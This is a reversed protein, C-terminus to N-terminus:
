GSYQLRRSLAAVRRRILREVLASVGFLGAYLLAVRGIAGYMVSSIVMLLAIGAFPLLLFLATFVRSQSGRVKPESFPLKPSVLYSIQLFLFALAGITATHAVAHLPNRFYYVFLVLLLLLAPGAVLLFLMNRGALVLRDLRCPTAYFIWSAEYADTAEISQKLVMPLILIAFFFLAFQRISVSGHLFPDLLAGERLGLYFYILLLPFMGMVALRFKNDHRFQGWVLRLVVRDEPRRFLRTLALSGRGTRPAAKEPYAQAEMYLAIRRLYDFSLTRAIRYGLLAMVGIALAAGLWEGATPTAYGLEVIAAFWTTPLAYLWPSKDVQAGVLFQKLANPLILYGTYVLLSIGFQLYALFNKLRQPSIWRMLQGYLLIVLLVVFVGIAMFAVFAAVGRLPHWGGQLLYVAVSPGALVLNFAGVYALVNTFKALFYTQSTIPQYGLIHYDDPSIVIASYEILLISGLLFLLGAATLSAGVFVSTATYNIWALIGGFLLYYALTSWFITKPNRGEQQWGFGMKSVRMDLRWALKLLALYQRRDVKLWAFVRNM